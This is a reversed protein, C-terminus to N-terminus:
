QGYRRYGNGKLAMGTSYSPTRSWTWGETRLAEKRLKMNGTYELEKVVRVFLPVAYGPLRARCHAALAKWDVDGAGGGDRVVVAACGARGDMRPVLVGYVNTEAIQPFEGVMDSVENTSVNESHWRFTDGLRDVFYLRGESDLRMLDGSRFWMDGKKFVDKVYRKKTAEPNNYYPSASSPNKPNAWYLMEGAEGLKARIAFGDPGRVLDQTEPDILARTEFGYNKLHWVPGRVGIANRSFDGRNANSTFAPGDSAAYLENICEIGFRERFAEWVDPRMGNGWAMRVKHGKDLPGPPANVLYRCLEGVYQIHTANSEHVEPWFTRHSFKRSLVITAGRAICTLICLGYGAAHYLPLCTYMRDGPGLSIHNTFSGNSVIVQQFRTTAVAKPLGTTGSTYLLAALDTFNLKQRRSRPIPGTDPLSELKNRDFRVVQCSSQALEEEVPDVLHQVHNETLIYRASAIKACHVLAKGTLNCNLLATAAGIGNLAFMLILYEPSNGSDIAVFEGRQVGLDNILWNGVPQLAAFFQAYTWTRGEFMLFLEDSRSSNAHDELTDFVTLRDAWQKRKLLLQLNLLRWYPNPNWLDQRLHYKGDLYAAVAATGLAAGAGTLNM